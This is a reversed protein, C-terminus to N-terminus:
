VPAIAPSSTAVSASKACHPTIRTSATSSSNSIAIPKPLAGSGLPSRTATTVLAPPGPMMM